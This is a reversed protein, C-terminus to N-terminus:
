DETLWGEPMSLQMSRPIALWSTGNNSQKVHYVIENHGDERGTFCGPIIMCNIEGDGEWGANTFAESLAKRKESLGINSKGIHVEHMSEELQFLCRFGDIFHFDKILFDDLDIDHQNLSTTEEEVFLEPKNNCCSELNGIRTDIAKIVQVLARFAADKSDQEYVREIEKLVDKM